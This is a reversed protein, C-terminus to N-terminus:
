SRGRALRPRVAPRRVGPGDHRPELLGDGVTRHVRRGTARATASGGPALARPHRRPLQDAMELVLPIPVGHSVDSADILADGIGTQMQLALTDGLVARVDPDELSGHIFVEVVSYEPELSRLVHPM